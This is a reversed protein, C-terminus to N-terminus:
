ARESDWRIKAVIKASCVSSGTNGTAPESFLRM